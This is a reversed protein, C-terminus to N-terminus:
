IFARLVWLHGLRCSPAQRLECMHLLHAVHDHFLLLSNFDDFTHVIYTNTYLHTQHTHINANTIEPIAIYRWSYLAHTTHNHFLLLGNFHDVIRM